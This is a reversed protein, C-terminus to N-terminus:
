DDYDGDEYEDEDAFIMEMMLDYVQELEEEDEVAMLMLEGDEIESRLISVELEEADNAPNAPTLALYEDGRFEVRALVELEFEEGDENTINIIEANREEM